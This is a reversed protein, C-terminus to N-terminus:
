RVVTVSRTVRRGGLDAVVHYTGASLSQVPVRVETGDHAPGDFVVAVQRGLVDVLTIRAPTPADLRLRFATESRAPNPGTQVLRAGAVEPGDEDDVTLTQCDAGLPWGMDGFFACTIDGPDQYAEGRAVAPTMLAASTGRIVAEDWHSFSSGAEFSAPAWVPAPAGYIRRVEPADVFLDQSKLLAGLAASNNPYVSTDLISRGQGDELFTDFLIPSTVGNSSFGICGQGAVGACEVTGSGNDVDGSGIFGLGHGLEHLVITVFDFQNSPPRGDLGYYFASQASNFTATIDYNQASPFLDTGAIADALAFARWTGNGTRTIRPGAQGLVNSALASFTAQVRIPVSSTLHTSWIEVARQFAQRADTPTGSSYDVQFTSARGQTVVRTYSQGQRASAVESEALPPGTMAVGDLDYLTCVHGDAVHQARPATSALLALAALLVKM